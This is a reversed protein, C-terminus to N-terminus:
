KGRRWVEERYEIERLKDIDMSAPIARGEWESRQYGHNRVKKSIIEGQVLANFGDHAALFALRLILEDRDPSGSHHVEYKAKKLMPLPGRYSSTLFVVEKAKELTELYRALEPAISSDYCFRCFRSKTLIEPTKPLFQFSGEELAIICSKCLPDHCSECSATVKPTRCSCCLDQSQPTPM